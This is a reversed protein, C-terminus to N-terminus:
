RHLNWNEVQALVDGVAVLPNVSEAEFRRSIRPDDVSTVLCVFRYGTQGTDPTLRFTRIGLQNLRDVAQQWTFTEVQGSRTASSTVRGGNALRSYRGANGGDALADESSAAAEASRNPFESSADDAAGASAAFESAQLSAARSPIAAQGSFSRDRGPTAEEGRRRLSATASSRASRSGSGISTGTSATRLSVESRTNASGALPDRWSHRRRALESSSANAVVGGTSTRQPQVDSDYPEFLDVSSPQSTSVSRVLLADSQGVRREFLQGFAMKEPMRVTPSASVPFFQPIGFIAMVPVATMPILMLLTKFLSQIRRM